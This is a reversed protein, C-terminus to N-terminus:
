QNCGMMSWVKFFYKVHIRLYLNAYNLAVILPLNGMQGKLSTKRLNVKIKIKENHGIISCFKYFFISLTSGGLYQSANNKVLISGFTTWKAWLLFKPPIESSHNKDVKQTKCYQLTQFTNKAHVRLYLIPYSKVIALGSIGM